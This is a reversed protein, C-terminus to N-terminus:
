DSLIVQAMNVTGQRLLSRTASPKVTALMADAPYRGSHLDECSGEVEGKRSRFM